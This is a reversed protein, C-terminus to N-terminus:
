IKQRVYQPPRLQAREFIEKMTRTRGAFEELLMEELDELPRALGFLLPQERTAPNYEFTPVGQENSSSENAM